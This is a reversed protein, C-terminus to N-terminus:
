RAATRRSRELWFAYAQPFAARFRALHPVMEDRRGLTLGSDLLKEIV